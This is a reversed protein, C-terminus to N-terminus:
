SVNIRLASFLKYKKKCVLVVKKLIRKHISVSQMVLGVHIGVSLMDLDM